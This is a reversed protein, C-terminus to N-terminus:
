CIRSRLQAMEQKRQRPNQCVRKVGMSVTYICLGNLRQLAVVADLWTRLHRVSHKGGWLAQLLDARHIVRSLTRRAGRGESVEDSIQQCEEGACILNTLM